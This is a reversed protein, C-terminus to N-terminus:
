NYEQIRITYVECASWLCPPEISTSVFYLIILTPFTYYEIDFPCTNITLLLSCKWDLHAPISVIQTKSPDRCHKLLDKM